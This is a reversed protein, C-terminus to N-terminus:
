TVAPLNLKVRPKEGAVGSIRHCKDIAARMAIAQEVTLAKAAAELDIKEGKLADEFEVVSEDSMRKKLADFDIDFTGDGREKVCLEERIWRVKEKLVETASELIKLRAEASQARHIWESEDM